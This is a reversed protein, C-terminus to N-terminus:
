NEEIIPSCVKVALNTRIVQIKPAPEADSKWRRYNTVCLDMTTQLLAFPYVFRQTVNDGEGYYLPTAGTITVKKMWSPNLHQWEYSPIQWACKGEQMFKILREPAATKALRERQLNRWILTIEGVKAYHAFQISCGGESGDGGFDVGDLRRVFRIERLHVNTVVVHNPMYLFATGNGHWVRFENSNPKTALQSLDIGLQRLYNTGLHVAESESPVGEADKIDNALEDLYKIVGHPFFGLERKKSPSSFFLTSPNNYPPYPWPNTRNTRDGLTFSGLAMM